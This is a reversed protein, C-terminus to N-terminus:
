INSRITHKRNIVVGVVRLCYKGCPIAIYSINEVICVSFKGRMLAHIYDLRARM